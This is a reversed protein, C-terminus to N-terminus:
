LMYQMTETVFQQMYIVSCQLIVSSIIIHKQSMLSVIMYIIYM